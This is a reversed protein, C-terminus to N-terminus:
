TGKVIGTYYKEVTREEFSQSLSKHTEDNKAFVILGSTDKDLRHVTYIEGYKEQLIKKLSLEEGERDPISLVGPSKNIVIFDANEFIIDFLHKSMVETQWILREHIKAIKSREGTLIAM